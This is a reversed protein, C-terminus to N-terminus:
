SLVFFNNTVGDLTMGGAVYLKNDKSTCYSASCFPSPVSPHDTWTNNTPDFIEVSDTPKKIKDVESVGGAVWLKENLMAAVFDARKNKMSPGQTWKETKLDFIELTDKIKQDKDLGGLAYVHTDTHVIQNFVNKSPLNPLKRWTGVNMDFVEFANTALKGQRGGIVYLNDRLIFATAAYRATPMDKLSKWTKNQLDYQMLYDRPNTDKASGGVVFIRDDHVVCAIGSLAEKMGDRGSWEKTKTDFVEVSDTVEQGDSIGGMVVISEGVVMCGPAARNVSMCGHGKWKSNSQNFSEMSNIPQGKADSGGIGYIFGNCEVAKLYVRKTPMSNLSKFPM